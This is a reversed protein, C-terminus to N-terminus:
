LGFGSGDEGAGDPRGHLSFLKERAAASFGPGDDCVEVLLAGNQDRALRLHLAGQHSFKLANGIINNFIRLFDIESLRIAGPLGTERQLSFAINKRRAEPAWLAELQALLPALKSVEGRFMEAEDALSLLGNIYLAATHIQKVHAADSQSLSASELAQSASVIRSLAARM